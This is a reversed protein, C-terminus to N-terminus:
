PLAPGRETGAGSIALCPVPIQHEGGSQLTLAAEGQGLGAEM